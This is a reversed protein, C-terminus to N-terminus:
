YNPTSELLERVEDAYAWWIIDTREVSWGDSCATSWNPEDGEDICNYDTVKLVHLGYTATLAILKPSEGDILRPVDSPSHRIM